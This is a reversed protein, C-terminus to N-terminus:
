DKKNREELALQMSWISLPRMYGIARYYKHAYLAEPPTLLEQIMTAALAYTVGTWSEQSQITFYDIDGNLFGNVAGMNGNCFSQVNNEFITKLTAQIHDKPFVIYENIKCCRLYWQGCLQDAMISNSQNKSCDFNYYLGNWLKKEFSKKGKALLQEFLKRDDLKGLLDAMGVMALLAALWLGGCYASTGSMVWTDFTQDPQGSNEILGDGDTDYALAKHMVTYCANYM